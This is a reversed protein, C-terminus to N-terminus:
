SLLMYIPCETGPLSTGTDVVTLLQYEPPFVYIGPANAVKWYSFLHQVGYEGSIVGVGAKHFDM